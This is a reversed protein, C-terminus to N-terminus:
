KNLLNRVQELVAKTFIYCIIYMISTRSIKLVFHM